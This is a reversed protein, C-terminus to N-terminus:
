GVVIRVDPGVYVGQGLVVDRGVTAGASVHVVHWVKTADGLVAGDDVVATPHVYAAAM